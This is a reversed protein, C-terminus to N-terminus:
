DYFHSTLLLLHQTLRTCKWIFDPGRSYQISPALSLFMQTQEEPKSSERLSALFFYAMALIHIHLRMSLYQVKSFLELGQCISPIYCMSSGSYLVSCLSPNGQLVYVLCPTLGTDCKPLIWGAPYIFVQSNAPHLHESTHSLCFLVM